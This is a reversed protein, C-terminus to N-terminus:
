AVNADTMYDQYGPNMNTASIYLNYVMNDVLKGGFNSGNFVLEYETKGKSINYKQFLINM